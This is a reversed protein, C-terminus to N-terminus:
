SGEIAPSARNHGFSLAKAYVARMGFLKFSPQSIKPQANAAPRAGAASLM